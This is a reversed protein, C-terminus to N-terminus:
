DRVHRLGGLFVSCHGGVSDGEQRKGTADMMMVGGGYHGRVELHRPLTGPSHVGGGLLRATGLYGLGGLPGFSRGLLRAGIPKRDKEM